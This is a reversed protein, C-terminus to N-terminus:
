VLSANGIRILESRPSNSVCNYEVGDFVVTYEQGTVFVHTTDFYHCEYSEGGSHFFNSENKLVSVPAPEAYHTRNKLVWTKIASIVTKMYDNM